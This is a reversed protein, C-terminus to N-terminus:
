SRLSKLRDAGSAVSLAEIKWSYDLSAVVAEVEDKSFDYPSEVGKDDTNLIRGGVVQAKLIDVLVANLGTTDNSSELVEIKQSLAESVSPHMSRILLYCDDWGKGFGQLSLRRTASINITM